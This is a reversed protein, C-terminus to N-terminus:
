CWQILSNLFWVRLLTLDSALIWFLFRKDCIAPLFHLWLYWNVMLPWWCTFYLHKVHKALPERINKAETPLASERETHWWGSAWPAAAMPSGLPVHENLYPFAMYKWSNLEDAVFFYTREYSFIISHNVSLFNRECTEPEVVCPLWPSSKGKM